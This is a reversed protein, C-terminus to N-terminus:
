SLFDILAAYGGNAGVAGVPFTSPLAGYVNAVRLVQSNVIGNRPIISNVTNAVLLGVSSASVQYVIWTGKGTMTYAPSITFSKDGTTASSILGSDVVMSDPYGNNDTYLGMTFTSGAFLTTVRARMESITGGEGYPLWVALLFGHLSTVGSLTSYPFTWYKGSWRASSIDKPLDSTMAVTGDKDPFTYTRAATNSNTFFSTFTNLVNKFNIKFM